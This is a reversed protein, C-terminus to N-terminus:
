VGAYVLRTFTEPSIVFTGWKADYTAAPRAMVAEDASKGEAKLKAVSDRISRLMDRYETLERKGGVPGHGPIVLTRDSVRSVNAEAARVMGDISGGTSYDIFPYHGNWWTDGVHLVDADLFAVSLDTDTHAHEYPELVVAAPGVYIQLEGRSVISPLAAPPSPEFTFDWGDVRTAVALRRRTNEHALITAGEAGLAANGDTHDFHWHTNVVYRVPVSSISELAKRINPGAGAVGSDVLLTSAAVHLVAINGGAGSLVTINGRLTQSQISASAGERRMRDVVTDGKEVAWVHRPLASVAVCALGTTAIFGRRSVQAPISM